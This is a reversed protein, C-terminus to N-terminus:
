NLKRAVVVTTKLTEVVGSSENLAELFIIYIGIRMARGDDELGDFVISGSSASAQNNLLTRVLRGKSDFIKIRVQAVTQTINYNILAFDEFGDNDPSFPNPSVSIKAERNQNDTFISNQLGPTAGENSVSTSWNFQDNGNLNPNIRELSRNKTTLINKNHWDDSYRISDIINRKADKLWILEGTNVLGMSSEGIVNKNTNGLIYKQLTISDAILLFYSGAAIVFSTDSLKYFNGNEDEILWGGINIESTGNNFFEIFESNDIDPDFMIENIVLQDREYDPVLSISNEKGPTSKNESLSTVWNSSDNTSQTLSIRELSYGNKGGWDPDFSLSDIIG